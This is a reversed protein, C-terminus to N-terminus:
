KVGYVTRFDIDRAVIINTEVAQQVYGTPPINITNELAISAMDQANDTSSDFTMGNDNNEALNDALAKFADDLFSLLIAGGFRQAYHNDIWADLGAAGLQDAAMSDIRVRVGDPTEITGWAVFVKAVGMNIDVKREGSVKSGRSILVVSGDASYVDRNILCSTQGPYNTVIRPILTCPITTGNILLFKLDPRIAAIGEAYDETALMNGITGGGNAGSSGLGGGLGGRGGAASAGQARQRNAEMREEFTMGGGQGNGGRNNSGQGNAGQAGGQGGGGGQGSSSSKSDAAGWLVDQQWRRAAAIEEPTPEPKGNKGVPRPAAAATGLSPAGAPAAPAAGPAAPPQNQANLAALREAEKRKAEEDALQKAMKAQFAALDPGSSSRTALAADEQVPVGEDDGKKLANVAAYVFFAVAFLSAVIIGVVAVIVGRKKSKPAKTTPEGRDGDLPAPPDAPTAPATIFSEPADDDFNQYPNIAM